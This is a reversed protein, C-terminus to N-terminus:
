IISNINKLAIRTMTFCIIFAGTCMGFVNFKNLTQKNKAMLNYQYLSALVGAFTSISNYNIQKNSKDNQKENNM